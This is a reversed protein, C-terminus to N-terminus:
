SCKAVVVTPQTAGYWTVKSTPVAYYTVGAAIAGNNVDCATDRPVTGVPLAVFRDDQRLIVYATTATVALNSPPLPKAPANVVSVPGILVSDGRPTTSAAWYYVTAGSPSTSDIYSTATPGTTTLPSAPPTATTNRYLKIGALDTLNTGDDNKTPLTWTITVSAGLALTPILAFLAAFLKKM